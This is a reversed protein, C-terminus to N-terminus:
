SPRATTGASEHTAGVRAEAERPEAAVYAALLALERVYIPRLLRTTLFRKISGLLGTRVLLQTTITVRSQGASAGADVTFTTVAGNAELDSEVLVRGPQPETIAARHRQKRGLLRLDFRIITGAGIGGREVTLGSFQEPLIRHHGTQYNAIVAYAREPQTPISSSATVLHNARSERQMQEKGRSERESHGVAVRSESKLHLWFAQPQVSQSGAPRCRSTDSLM